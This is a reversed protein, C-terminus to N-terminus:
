FPLKERAKSVNPILSNRLEIIEEHESDQDPQDSDKLLTNM